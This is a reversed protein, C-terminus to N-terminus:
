TASKHVLLESRLESVLTKWADGLNEGFSDDLISMLDSSLHKLRDFKQMLSEFEVKSQDRAHMENFIAIGAVKRRHDEELDKFKSKLESSEDSLSAKSYGFPKQKADNAYDIYGRQVDILELEETSGDDYAVGWMPPRDAEEPRFCEVKGDCSGVFYFRRIRKGFYLDITNSFLYGESILKSKWVGFKGNTAQMVIDYENKCKSYSKRSSGSLDARASTSRDSTKHADDSDRRRKARKQRFSIEANTSSSSVSGDIPRLSLNRQSPESLVEITSSSSSLSSSPVAAPASVRRPRRGGDPVIFKPSTGVENYQNGFTLLYELVDENLYFYDRGELLDTESGRYSLAVTGVKSTWSPFYAMSYKPFESVNRPVPWKNWGSAFLCDLLTAYPFYSDADHGSLLVSLSDPDSPDVEISRKAACSASEKRETKVSRTSSSTYRNSSMNLGAPITYTGFPALYIAAPDVEEDFKSSWHPFHLTASTESLAKVEVVFFMMALDLADYKENLQLVPNKLVRLAELYDGQPRHLLSSKRPRSRQVSDKEKTILSLREENETPQGQVQGSDKGKDSFSPEFEDPWLINEAEVDGAAFDNEDM